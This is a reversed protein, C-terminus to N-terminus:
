NTAAFGRNSDYERQASEESAISELNLQQAMQVFEVLKQNVRGIAAGQHYLWDRRQSEHPETSLIEMGLDDVVSNVALNYVASNLLEGAREGTEKVQERSMVPPTFKLPKASSNTSVSHKSNGERPKRTM